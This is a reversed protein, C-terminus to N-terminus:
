GNPMFRKRIEARQQPTDAPLNFRWGLAIEPAILGDQVMERYGQWLQAEDYLVGNGWDISISEDEIRGLGYLGALCACLAVAQEVAQTWMRQFDMVTLNYEGQSSAIETATREEVNADSLLGRKLGIISEVNRLYEQKRALYSQERLQPSFLTIGVQEPGDDLGVFLSHSLKKDRDLLDKSVFVRSQGRRFEGRLQAENEDIASILGVAPAYVSIGDYSGDVCNIMPTKIRVLGVSFLPKEYTYRQALMRYDPHETLPVAVGLKDASSARYLQNTITLYGDKDVTRRELLTYYNRDHISKEFMGVDTPEGRADTAFLLMNQRPIVGFFFGNKGMCPKLYCEGEVLALQVAERSVRELADTIQKVGADSTNMKYEAFVTKVLKNVITYAIQQCPDTDETAEQQYYLAIWNERASKMAKTTKDSAGFAEQLDYLNM